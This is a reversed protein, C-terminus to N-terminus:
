RQKIAKAEEDTLFRGQVADYYRLGDDFRGSMIERNPLFYGSPHPQLKRAWDSAPILKLAEGYPRAVSQAIAIINSALEHHHLLQQTATRSEPPLSALGAKVAELAKKDPGAGEIVHGLAYVIEANSAVARLYARDMAEQNRDMAKQKSDVDLKLQKAQAAYDKKTLVLAAIETNLGSKEVLLAQKEQELQAKQDLARYAASYQKVEAIAWLGLGGLLPILALVVAPTVWSSVWTVKASAKLQRLEERRKDLELEKLRRDLDDPAGPPVDPPDTAM